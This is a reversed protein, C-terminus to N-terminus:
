VSTSGTRSHTRHWINNTAGNELASLQEEGLKIKEDLERADMLLKSKMKVFHEYDAYEEGSLYCHLFSSVQQSRRDISEKLHRAEEHQACLKDRKAELLRQM